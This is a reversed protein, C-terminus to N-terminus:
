STSCAKLDEVLATLSPERELAWIRTALQEAKAAGLVPAVLGLFKTTLAADSLPNEPEGYPYTIYRELTRNTRTTVTVRSPRQRPYNQDAEADTSVTVRAALAKLRLDTRHAPAFHALDAGGHLLATATVCPISMQATTFSDWSKIDHSAAVKYSGVHIAAVDDATLGDNARMDLVADVAGHIHRCAAYPKIYCDTIAFPQGRGVTLIDLRAYREPEVDAGGYAQFFGDSCEIVGPPGTLGAEALLGALLGNRAAFGPHLRKVDGGHMFTFLGGATAAAGGFAHEHRAADFGKLVGWVASAGFVGTISTNHFGRWRSRPHIAAALRCMIEYGAVTAAIAQRGDAGTRHGAALLAPIVVTGPHVSGPTYGDDLELGHGSGGMLFASSLMDFRSSRGPVPTDGRTGAALLAREAIGTVDQVAGAVVAGISDLIHYKARHRTRADLRDFAIGAVTESLTRTVAPTTTQQTAAPPTARINM